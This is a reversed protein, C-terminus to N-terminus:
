NGTEEIFVSLTYTGTHRPLTLTSRYITDSQIPISANELLFTDEPSGVRIFANEPAILTLTETGGPYGSVTQPVQIEPQEPQSGQVGFALLLPILVGLCLNRTLLQIKM